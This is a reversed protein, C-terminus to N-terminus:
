PFSDSASPRLRTSTDPMRTKMAPEASHPRAWVVSCSMRKRATCPTPEADSNVLANATMASRNGGLSRPLYWPSNPATNPRDETTPGSAPPKMVSWKPQCQTKKM